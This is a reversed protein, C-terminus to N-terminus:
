APSMELWDDPCPRLMSQLLLTKGVEPDLWTDWDAEGLIVPMRDHIPAMFDNASTTIITFTEWLEKTEPHMWYEWLGALALPRHQANNFRLKQKKKEGPIARWEYFSSAPVLCRRRKFASRFSPKEAVGEARANFTRQAIKEDKAWGPILGWRLLSALRQGNEYRVVPATNTPRIDANAFGQPLTDLRFVAQLRQPTESLEYRGCM